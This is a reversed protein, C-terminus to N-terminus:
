LTEKQDSIKDVYNLLRESHWQFMNAIVENQEQVKQIKNIVLQQNLPKECFGVWLKQYEAGKVRRDYM